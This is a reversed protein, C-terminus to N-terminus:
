AQQSAENAIADSGKVLDELLLWQRAAATVGGASQEMALLRRAQQEKSKALLRVAAEGNHRQRWEVSMRQFLNAVDEETVDHPWLKAAQMKMFFIQALDAPTYDNMHFTRQVRRKLGDNANLFAAM